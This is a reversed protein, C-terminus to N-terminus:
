RPMICLTRNAPTAAPCTYEEGTSTGTLTFDALWFTASGTAIPQCDEPAPGTGFLACQGPALLPFRAVDLVSSYQAAESLPVGGATLGALSMWRDSTRNYIVLADTTYTFQIYPTIDDAANVPLLLPCDQPESGAAAAPCVGYEVGGLSVNFQSVGNLATWFHVEPNTTSIWYFFDCGDWAKPDRRSISWVQLCDGVKLSDTFFRDIGLAAPRPGDLATFTLGPVVLTTGSQNIVSFDNDDYRLTVNPVSAITVDVAAGAAVLDGAAVSSSQITGAPTPSDATWLVGTISGLRLGVRNLAAVAQPVNLGAVDPVRAEQAQVPLLSAV